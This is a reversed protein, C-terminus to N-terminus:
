MGEEKRMESRLADMMREFDASTLGLKNILEKEVKVELSTLLTLQELLTGGMTFTADDGVRTALLHANANDRLCEAMMKVTEQIQQNENNM